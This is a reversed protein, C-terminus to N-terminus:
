IAHFLTLMKVIAFSFQLVARSVTHVNRHEIITAYLVHILKRKNLADLCNCVSLEVRVEPCFVYLIQTWSMCTSVSFSPLLVHTHCHYYCWRHSHTSCFLFFAICDFQLMTSFLSILEEQVIAM